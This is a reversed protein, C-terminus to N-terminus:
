SEEASVAGSGVDSGVDRGLSGNETGRAGDDKGDFRRSARIESLAGSIANLSTDSFRRGTLSASTVWFAGVAMAGADCFRISESSGNRGSDTATDDTSPREAIEDAERLVILVDCVKCGITSSGGVGVAGILLAARLFSYSVM